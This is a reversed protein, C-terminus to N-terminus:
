LIIDRNVWALSYLSTWRNFGFSCSRVSSSKQSLYIWKNDKKSLYIFHQSQHLWLSKILLSYKFCEWRIYHYNDSGKKTRWIGAYGDSDADSWFEPGCWRRSDEENIFHREGDWRGDEWLASPEVWILFVVATLLSYIM